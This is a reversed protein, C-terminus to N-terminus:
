SEEVEAVPKASLITWVDPNLSSLLESMDQNGNRKDAIGTLIVDLRAEFAGQWNAENIEDETM